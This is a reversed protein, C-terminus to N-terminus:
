RVCSACRSFLFSIQTTDKINSPSYKGEDKKMRREAERRQCYLLSPFNIKDWLSFFYFRVVAFLFSNVSLSIFKMEEM